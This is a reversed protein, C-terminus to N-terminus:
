VFISYILNIKLHWTILCHKGMYLPAKHWFIFSYFYLIKQRSTQLYVIFFKFVSLVVFILNIDTKLRLALFSWMLRESNVSFDCFPFLIFDDFILPLYSSLCWVHPSPYVQLRLWRWAELACDLNLVGKGWRGTWM